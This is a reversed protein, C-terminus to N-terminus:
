SNPVLCLFSHLPCWIVHKNTQLFFTDIKADAVFEPISSLPLSDCFQAEISAMSREGGSNKGTVSGFTILCNAVRLLRKGMRRIRQLHQDDITVAGAEEPHIADASDATSPKGQNM